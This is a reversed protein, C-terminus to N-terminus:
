KKVIRRISTGAPHTVRLMYLGTPLGSLDIRGTHQFVAVLQSVNDYVEVKLVDVGCIALIGTTPNPAVTIGDAEVLSIGDSDTFILAFSGTDVPTYTGHSGCAMLNLLHRGEALASADLITTGDASHSVSQYINSTDFSYYLTVINNDTRDFLSAQVPTVENNRWYRYYIYHLGQGLDSANINAIGGNIPEQRHTTSQDFWYELMGAGDRVNVFWTSSISYANGVSDTPQFHVQHLGPSLSSADIADLAQTGTTMSMSHYAAYDQDFWYRVGTATVSPPVVLSDLPIFQAQALGAAALAVLTFFLKKM